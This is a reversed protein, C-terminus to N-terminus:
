STASDEDDSDILKPYIHHMKERAQDTSVHWRIKVQAQNREHM